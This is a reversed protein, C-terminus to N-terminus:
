RNVRNSTQSSVKVKALTKERMQAMASKWGCWPCTDILLQEREVM